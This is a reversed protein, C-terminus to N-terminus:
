MFGTVGLASMAVIWVRGMPGVFKGNNLLALRWRTGIEELPLLGLHEDGNQGVNGM